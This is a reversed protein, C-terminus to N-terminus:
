NIRHTRTNHMITIKMSNCLANHQDKEINVDSQVYLGTM